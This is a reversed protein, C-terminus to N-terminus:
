ILRVERCLAVTKMTFTRGAMGPGDTGLETWRLGSQACYLKCSSRGLGGFVPKRSLLSTGMM